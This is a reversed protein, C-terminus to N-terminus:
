NKLVILSKSFINKLNGSSKGVLAYNSYDQKPGFKPENELKKRRGRTLIRWNIRNGIPPPPM